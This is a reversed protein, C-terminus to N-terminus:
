SVASRERDRPWHFCVGNIPVPRIVPYGIMRACDCMLEAKMKGFCGVRCVGYVVRLDVTKTAFKTFAMIGRHALRTVGGCLLVLQEVFYNRKSM